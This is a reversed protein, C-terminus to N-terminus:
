LEGRWGTYALRTSGEAKAKLRADCRCDLILRKNLKRKISEYYVRFTPLKNLALAAASRIIKFISRVCIAKILRTEINLHELDRTGVDGLTHSARLDMLQIKEDKIVGAGM